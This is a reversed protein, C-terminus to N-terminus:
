STGTPATIPELARAAELLIECSSALITVHVRDKVMFGYCDGRRSGSEILVSGSPPEERPSSIWYVQDSLAAEHLWVYRGHPEENRLPEDGWLGGPSGDGYHLEIGTGVM